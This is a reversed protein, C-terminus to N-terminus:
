GKVKLLFFQKDYVAQEEPTMTTVANYYPWLTTTPATTVPTPTTLTTTSSEWPSPSSVLSSSSSSNAPSVIVTFAATRLEGYRCYTTLTDSPAEM